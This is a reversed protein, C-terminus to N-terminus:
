NSKNKKEKPVLVLVILKMFLSFVNWVLYPSTVEFFSSNSKCMKWARWVKRMCRYSLIHVSLMFLNKVVLLSKLIGWLFNLWKLWEPESYKSLPFLKGQSDIAETPLLSQFFEGNWFERDHRPHSNHTNIDCKSCVFFCPGCDMCRVCQQLDSSCMSCKVSPPLAEKSLADNFLPKRFGEWNTELRTQRTQWTTRKLKADQRVIDEAM